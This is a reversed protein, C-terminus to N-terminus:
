RHLIPHLLETVGTIVLQAAIAAIIIGVIRSAADVGTRGFWETIKEAGLMFVLTIAFVVAAMPVFFQDAALPISVTLVGPGTIIPIALPFVTPDGEPHVHEKAAEATDAQTNQAFVMNSGVRFLLLGGAIRFAQMSVGLANLLAEGAYAFAILILLAYITARVAIRTQEQSERGETLTGFAAAAALPNVMALLTVFSYFLESFREV